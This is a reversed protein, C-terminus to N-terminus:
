SGVWGSVLFRVNVGMYQIISRSRQPCMGGYITRFLFVCVGMSEILFQLIQLGGSDPLTLHKNTCIFFMCSQQSCPFGRLAQIPCHCSFYVKLCYVAMQHLILLSVCYCVISLAAIGSTYDVPHALFMQGYRNTSSSGERSNSLALQVEYKQQSLKQCFNFEAHKRVIATFREVGDVSSVECEM